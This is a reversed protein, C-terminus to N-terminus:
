AVPMLSFNAAAVAGPRSAGGPRKPPGPVTGMFRAPTVPGSVRDVFAKRCLLCAEVPRQREICLDEGEVCFHSLFRHCAQFPPM